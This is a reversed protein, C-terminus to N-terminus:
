APLALLGGVIAPKESRSYEADGLVAPGGGGGVGGGKVAVGGGWVWWWLLVM